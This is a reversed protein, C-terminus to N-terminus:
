PTLTLSLIARKKIKKFGKRVLPPKNIRMILTYPESRDSKGLFYLYKGQKIKKGIKMEQYAEDYNM